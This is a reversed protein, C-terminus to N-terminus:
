KIEKESRGNETILRGLYMHSTVQETQQGDIAINIKLSNSVVMAKTKKINIKMGLTDSGRQCGEYKVANVVWVKGQAFM